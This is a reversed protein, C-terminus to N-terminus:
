DRAYQTAKMGEAADFKLPRFIPQVIGGKIRRRIDNADIGKRMIQLTDEYAELTRNIDEESHSYCPHHVGIALIGRAIAEQQFLTRLLLADAAPTPHFMIATRAPLGCAQTISELRLRRAIDNYGDRLTRGLKWIKELVPARTLEELTAKAASLSVAEGGFTFSFFVEDFVEMIDKRGVVASIPM